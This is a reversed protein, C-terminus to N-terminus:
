CLLKIENLAAKIEAIHRHHTISDLGSVSLPASQRAGGVSVLAKIEQLEQFIHSLIRKRDITSDAAAFRKQPFNQRYELFARCRANFACRQCVAVHKRQYSKNRTCTLYVATQEKGKM